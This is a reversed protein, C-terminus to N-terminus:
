GNRDHHVHAASTFREESERALRGNLIGAPASRTVKLAVFEEAASGPM